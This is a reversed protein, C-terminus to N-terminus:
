IKNNSTSKNSITCQFDQQNNFGGALSERNVTFKKGDKPITFILTSPTSEITFKEPGITGPNQCTERFAEASSNTNGSLASTDINIIIKETFNVVGSECRAISTQFKSLLNCGIKHQECLNKSTELGDKLFKISSNSICTLTKIESQAPSLTPFAAAIAIIYIVPNHM